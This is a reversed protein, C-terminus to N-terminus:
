RPRLRGIGRRRGPGLLARVHHARPKTSARKAVWAEAMANDYTAAPASSPAAGLQDLRGTYRVSTYQGRDTHAILGEGPQRLVNAMELADLVLDTRLHTARMGHPHHSTLLPANKSMCTAISAVEPRRAM